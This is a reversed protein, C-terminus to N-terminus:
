ITIKGKFHKIEKTLAGAILGWLAIDSKGDKLKTVKKRLDRLHTGM